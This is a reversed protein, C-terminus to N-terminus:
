QIYLSSSLRYSSPVTLDPFPNKKKKLYLSYIYASSFLGYLFFVIYSIPSNNSTTWLHLPSSEYPLMQLKPKTTPFYLIHVCFCTLHTSTTTPAQPLKKRNAGDHALLSSLSSPIPSKFRSNFNYLQPKPSDSQSHSSPFNYSPQCRSLGSSILSQFSALSCLQMNKHIWM